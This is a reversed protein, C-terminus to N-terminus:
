KLWLPRYETYLFTYQLPVRTDCLPPLTSLLLAPCITNYLSLTSLLLPCITFCRRGCQICFPWAWCLFRLVYFLIHIMSCCSLTRFVILICCFYLMYFLFYLICCVLISSLCKSNVDLLFSVVDHDGAYLVTPFASYTINDLKEIERSCWRCWYGCNWIASWVMSSVMQFYTHDSVMAM